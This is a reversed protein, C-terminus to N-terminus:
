LTVARWVDVARWVYVKLVDLARWVNVARWVYMKLVDLARWVNVVRWVYMVHDRGKVSEVCLMNNRGKHAHWYM